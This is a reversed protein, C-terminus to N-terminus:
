VDSLKEINNADNLLKRALNEHLEFSLPKTFIDAIQDKSRIWAIKVLKNKVCEKVYHERVGTMHRLKNRGGTKASAEAPRNDCWLTVPCFPLCLIYQLTNNLAILEQCAESM